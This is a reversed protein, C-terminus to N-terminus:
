FQIINKKRSIGHLENIWEGVSLYRPQKWTKAIIFFATTFMQTCTKIYIYTELKKTYIGHTCVSSWIILINLKILFRRVIKWLVMKGEWCRHIPTRTAGCGWWHKTNDMQAETKKIERKAWVDTESSFVRLYTKFPMYLALERSREIISLVNM